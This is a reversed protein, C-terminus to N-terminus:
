KKRRRVPAMTKQELIADLRDRIVMADEYREEDVAKQLEAQLKQLPDVPLRAAV